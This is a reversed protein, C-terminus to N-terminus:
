LHVHESPRCSMASAALYFLDCSDGISLSQVSLFRNKGDRPHRNCREKMAKLPMDITPVHGGNSMSNIWQIDGCSTSLTRYNEKVENENKMQQM